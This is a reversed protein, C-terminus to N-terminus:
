RAYEDMNENVVFLCATSGSNLKARFQRPFSGSLYTNPDSLLAVDTIGFGPQRCFKFSGSAGCSLADLLLQLRLDGVRCVMLFCLRIRFVKYSNVSEIHWKSCDSRPSVLRYVHGYM